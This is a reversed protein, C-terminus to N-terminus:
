CIPNLGHTTHSPNTGLCGHHCPDGGCQCGQAPCDVSGSGGLGLHLDKTFPDLLQGTPQGTFWSSYNNLFHTLSCQVPVHM